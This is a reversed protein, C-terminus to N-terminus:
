LGLKDKANRIDKPLPYFGHPPTYDDPITAYIQKGSETITMTDMAKGHNIIMLYEKQLLSDYQKNGYHKKLKMNKSGICHTLQRIEKHNLETM